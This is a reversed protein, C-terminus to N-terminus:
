QRADRRGYGMFGDDSVITVSSNSVKRTSAQLRLKNPTVSPRYCGSSRTSTLTSSALATSNKIVSALIALFRSTADLLPACLRERGSTVSLRKEDVLSAAMIRPDGKRHERWDLLRLVHLRALLECSANYFFRNPSAGPNAERGFILYVAKLDIENTRCIDFHIVKSTERRLSSVFVEAAMESIETGAEVLLTGCLLREVKFDM